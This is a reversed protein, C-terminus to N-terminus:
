LYRRAYQDLKSLVHLGCQAPARPLASSGAHAERRSQSLRM